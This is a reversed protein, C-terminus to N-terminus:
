SPPPSGEADEDSILGLRVAAVMMQATTKVGLKARLDALRNNVTSERVGHEAAIQKGTMGSALMALTQRETATVERSRSAFSVGLVYKDSLPHFIVDIEEGSSVSISSVKSVSGSFLSETIASRIRPGDRGDAVDTVCMGNALASAGYRLGASQSISAGGVVRFKRNILLLNRPRPM